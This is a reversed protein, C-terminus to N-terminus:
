KNFNNLYKELQNFTGNFGQTMNEFLSIFVKEQEVSANVPGGVITITTKGDKEEFSLENYIELPFDMDFPPKCIEANENSFSNTWVILDYPEIKHYRFIGYNKMGHGEMIYHFIGQPKFDLKLVKIPMEIPGWWKELEQATAFAEFVMQKPANYTRTIKLKETTPM